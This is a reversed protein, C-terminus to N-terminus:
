LEFPYVDLPPKGRRQAEILEPLAVVANGERRFYQEGDPMRSLEGLLLGIERNATGKDAQLREAIVPEVESIEFPSPDRAAREWLVSWINQWDSM